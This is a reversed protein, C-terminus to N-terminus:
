DHFRGPLHIAPIARSCEHGTHPSNQIRWLGSGGMTDNSVIVPRNGNLLRRVQNTVDMSRRGAGWDAKVVQWGGGNQAQAPIAFLCSAALLFFLPLYITRNKM